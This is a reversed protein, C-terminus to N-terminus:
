TMSRDLLRWLVKPALRRTRVMATTGRGPFVMLQGKALALEVADIVDAPAIAPAQQHASIGGAELQRVMPTDVLSPCVCAFRIGSDRQEHALVETFAVLAHKTASYAGLSPTPMWGALSAFVIIEGSRRAQMSPLVAKVARVVGGYNVDMAKLILETPQDALPGTPAIAAAATLRDIPGFEAETHAVLREMADGDAVDCVRTTITPALDATVALGDADVDVAVVATGDAALRQAAMRGMGSAAGTVIAVKRASIM